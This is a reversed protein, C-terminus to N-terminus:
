GGPDNLLDSEAMSGRKGRDGWRRDGEVGGEGGGAGGVRGNALTTSCTKNQKIPITRKTMDLM